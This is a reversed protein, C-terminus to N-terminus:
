TKRGGKAGTKLEMRKFASRLERYSKDLYEPFVKTDALIPMFNTDGNWRPVVHLHLHAEGAGAARGLNIGINFGHPHLCAKLARISARLLHFVERVEADNMETLEECHRRPAVMMHGTNYPYKNMMVFAHKGQYVILNELDKGQSSNICFFCEKEKPAHIYAM